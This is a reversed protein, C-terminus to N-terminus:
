LAGPDYCVSAFSCVTPITGLKGLEVVRQPPQVTPVVSSEIVATPEEVVIQSPLLSAEKINTLSM